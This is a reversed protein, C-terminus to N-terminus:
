LLSAAARAIRESPEPSLVSAHGWASMDLVRAGWRAALARTGRAIRGAPLFIAPIPECPAVKARAMAEVEIRTAKLHARSYVSRLKDAREEGELRMANPYADAMRCFAPLIREVPRLSAAFAGLGGPPTAGPVMADVFVLGRVRSPYRQAFRHLRLGAMSHGVLVAPGAQGLATLLANMDDAHRDPGPGDPPPDSGFLGARTFAASSVGIGSLARVLNAGDAYIGFAGADFLILPPAPTRLVRLSRGDPLAVPGCVLAAARVGASRGDSRSASALVATM